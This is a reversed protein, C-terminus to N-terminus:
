KINDRSTDKSIFRSYELNERRKMLQNLKSSFIIIVAAQIFCAILQISFLTLRLKLDNNNLTTNKFTSGEGLEVDIYLVDADLLQTGEVNNEIESLMHMMCMASECMYVLCFCAAISSSILSTCISGISQKHSAWIGICGSIAFTAGFTLRLILTGSLTKAHIETFKTFESYSVFMYQVILTVFCILIQIVGCIAISSTQKKLCSRQKASCDM